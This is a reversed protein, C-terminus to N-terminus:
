QDPKRYMTLATKLEIEQEEVDAYIDIIREEGPIMQFYNDSLKIDDRLDLYVFPVFNDSKILVKTVNDDRQVDIIKVSPKPFEYDRYYSRLSVAPLFCENTKTPKIFHTGQDSDGTGDFSFVVERSFAPLDITRTISNSESGDFSIYGYEVELSIDKPTENIGVVSVKDGDERLIFMTNSFARKLFYFSIKRTLYYDIITWGTEPWCDNYMWILDGYCYQKYRLAEALEKYLIGQMLGGYLLYGDMDLSSFDTIHRDIAKGISLHKREQEGHHNWIEGRYIVEEGDHFRIISSKKLPGHFGYESMFKTYLRDFGELEYRFKLRTSEDRGLWRWVHSDGIEQSNAIAGGFPSSPQYPIFRSNQRVAKPQIYNFIKAGPFSELAEKGRFWDTISEHIENNGTWVAMCPYNRLRKTQYYAEKEAEREFWGLHDPYFACAYMFDHMLMIGYESCKEYFVDPEYLGGGWMRLMNFNAEAAERVLTEYKEDSIRLYVSDAPVWNGGKCFIKVGNVEFAFLREKENIPDQNLKITRIGIKFPKFANTNGRCTVSIEVTYLEQKGMGNPWWLKPNEIEAVDDWYNLGGNIHLDVRRNWVVEDNYKISVDLTADDSSYECLNDITVEIGLYAKDECIKRTYVYAGDIYAGSIAKLYTNRGIGCTPVPKCWDWGYTFQPKRMYVRRDQVAFPSACYYSISDKELFDEIGSTIRILIYNTGEKLYRKVEANFPVFTNRHSGIPIGNLVIDAKHDLVDFNLFVKEEQLVDSSVSFEKYFWWSLDKVWYCDKTNTKNLPEDLIGNEVLPTIVDCPISACLWGERVPFVNPGRHIVDFKGDPRNLVEGHRDIGVDLFEARLKWQGSLDIIKM